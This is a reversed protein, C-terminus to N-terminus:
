KELEVFDVLKFNGNLTEMRLQYHKPVPDSREIGYYFVLDGTIDFIGNSPSVKMEKPYFVSSGNNIKLRQKEQSLVPILKERLGEDLYGTLIEHSQEVTQTSVDLRLGIFSLGMLRLYRADGRKGKFSFGEDDNVMPKIIIQKNSVLQSVLVRYDSYLKYNFGLSLITMFVLVIASIALTREYSKKLNIDM